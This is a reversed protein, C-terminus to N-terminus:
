EEEGSESDILDCLEKGTRVDIVSDVYAFQELGNNDIYKIRYDAPPEGYERFTTNIEYSFAIATYKEVDMNCCQPRDVLDSNCGSDVDYNPCTECDISIESIQLTIPQSDKYKLLNELKQAKGREQYYKKQYEDCGKRLTQFAEEKSKLKRELEAIRKPMNEPKINKKISELRENYTKEKKM